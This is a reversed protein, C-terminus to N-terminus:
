LGLKKLALQAANQEADRRSNGYGKISEHLLVIKCEVLFEKEHDKGSEQQVDYVPLDMKMKQLYEQLQTKADKTNSTPLLVNLRNAFLGLVKERCIGLGGDLYIASIVAELADALISDRDAGGSKHEGTGLNLFLGIQLERAVSALTSKNVLDARLRSLQGETADPFRCFLEESIIFGLISDGLFELRENNDKGVSRHTLALALLSSDRFKYNLQHLPESM